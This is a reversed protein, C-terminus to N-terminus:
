NEVVTLQSAKVKFPQWVVTDGALTTATIKYSFSGTPQDDRIPWGAVWFWDVPEKPPHGHFRMDFKEGNSMELTLSKVGKDDLNDGTKSDVVRLRFIETEGRKFQSNLVCGPGKATPGAGRVIDGEFFLKPGEQAHATALCPAVFFAALALATLGTKIESM